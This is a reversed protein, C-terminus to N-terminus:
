AQRQTFSWYALGFLVLFGIMPWPFGPMRMYIAQFALLMIYLYGAYAWEKLFRPIGPVLIAIGGLIKATANFYLTFTPYGLETFIKAVAPTDVFYYVASAVMALVLLINLIWYLLSKKMDVLTSIYDLHVFCLHGSNRAHVVLHANSYEVNGKEV